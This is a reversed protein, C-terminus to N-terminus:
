YRPSADFFVWFRWVFCHTAREKREGREEGEFFTSLSFFPRSIKRAMNYDGRSLDTGELLRLGRQSFVSRRAGSILPTTM